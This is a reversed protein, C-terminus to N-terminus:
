KQWDALIRLWNRRLGASKPTLFSEPHFQVSAALLRGQGHWELGMIERTQRCRATICLGPPLVAPEQVSLSHYSAAEFSSGYGCFLGRHDCVELVKCAGHLPALSAGVQLGSVEALLQHGLCVGLLPVRGFSNRVVAKTLPADQPAKPGPSLVLPEPSAVLATMAARDDCVVRRLKCGGAELWDILNFSFSDYHDIFVCNM